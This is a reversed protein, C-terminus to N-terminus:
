ISYNWLDRFYILKFLALLFREFNLWFKHSYALWCKIILFIENQGALIFSDVVATVILDAIALNFILMYTASHLDKNVVITGLIITNGQFLNLQFCMKLRIWHKKEYNGIVGVVEGIGILISYPLCDSIYILFFAIGGAEINTPVTINTQNMM